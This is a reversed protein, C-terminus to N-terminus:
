DDYFVVDKAEDFAGQPHLRAADAWMMVETGRVIYQIDIHARHTELRKEAAPVTSYSQVLAFVSSGDIEIRGDPTDPSFRALWDFAIAFRPHLLRNRGSNSLLDLIM